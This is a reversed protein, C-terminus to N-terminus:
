APRNFSVCHIVKGGDITCCTVSYQAEFCRGDVEAAVEASASVPMVTLALAGLSAGALARLLKNM